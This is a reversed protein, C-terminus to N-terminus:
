GTNMTNAHRASSRKSAIKRPQKSQISPEQFNPLNMPVACPRLLCKASGRLCYLLVHAFTCWSRTKIIKGLLPTQFWHRRLQYGRGEAFGSSPFWQADRTIITTCTENTQCWQHCQNACWGYDSESAGLLLELNTKLHKGWLCISMCVSINKTIFHHIKARFSIADAIDFSQIAKHKLHISKM